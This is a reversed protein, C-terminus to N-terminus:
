YLEKEIFNDKMTLFVSSIISDQILERLPKGNTPSIYHNDNLSIM